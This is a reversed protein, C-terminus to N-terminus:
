IIEDLQLAYKQDVLFPRDKLKVSCAPTKYLQKESEMYQLASKVDSQRFLQSLNTTLKM